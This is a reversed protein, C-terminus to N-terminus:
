WDVFYKESLIICGFATFATEKGLYDKIMILLAYFPNVPFYKLEQLSTHTHPHPPPLSLINEETWTFLFLHSTRLKCNSHVLTKM